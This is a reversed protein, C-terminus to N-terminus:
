DDELILSPPKYNDRDSLHQQMDSILFMIIHDRQAIQYRLSAALKNIDDANRDTKNKIQGVMSAAKWISGGIIAGATIAASWVEINEV